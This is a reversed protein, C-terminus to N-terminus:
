LYESNNIGAVHCTLHTEAACARYPGIGVDARHSTVFEGFIGTFLPTDQPRVSDDAGVSYLPASPKAYPGVVRDARQPLQSNAASKRLFLNNQRTSTPM